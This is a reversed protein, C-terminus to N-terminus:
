SPISVTQCSHNESEDIGGNNDQKSMGDQDINEGLVDGVFLVPRHGLDECLKFKGEDKSEPLDSFGTNSKLLVGGPVGEALTSPANNCGRLCFPSTINNTCLSPSSKEGTVSNRPLPQSSPKYKSSPPRAPSSPLSVVIPALTPTRDMNHALKRHLEEAINAMGSLYPSSSLAPTRYSTSIGTHCSHPSSPHSHTVSHSTSTPSTPFSGDLSLNSPTVSGQPTRDASFRTEENSPESLAPLGPKHDHQTQPSNVSRIPSRQGEPVSCSEVVLDSSMPRNSCAVPQQSSNEPTIQMCSTEVDPHALVITIPSSEDTSRTTQLPLLEMRDDDDRGGPKGFDISRFLYIKYAVVGCVAIFFGIANEKSLEDGFIAVSAGILLLEKCVMIVSLTVSSTLKVIVLEIYIMGYALVGFLLILLTLQMVKSSLDESEEFYKLLDEFELYFFLPPLAVVCIPLTYFLLSVPGLQRHGTSQLLLQMLSWRIGAMCVSGIAYLFGTWAFDVEGYSCLSIGGSILLIIGVLHCDLHRVGFIFSFILVFATNSSKIMTHFSVSISLLSLNSGAIEFATCIGIPVVYKWYMSSDLVSPSKQHFRVAAAICWELFFLLILMAVPFHFGYYTFTWKYSLTLSISIVFYLLAAAVVKALAVTVLKHM